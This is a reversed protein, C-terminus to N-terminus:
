ENEGIIGLRRLENVDVTHRREPNLAQSRLWARTEPTDNNFTEWGDTGFGAYGEVSGVLETDRVSHLAAGSLSRSIFEGLSLYSCEEWAEGLRRLIEARQEPTKADQPLYLANRTM